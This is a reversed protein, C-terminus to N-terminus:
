INLKMNIGNDSHSIELILEMKRGNIYDGDYKISGHKDYEKGKGIKIDLSYEGEFLVNGFRDYEKGKGNKMGFLYQGEFIVKGRDYEKGKGNRMGNLYEGEFILEGNYEKGMGNRMGNVYAGEFRMRGKNDYEKIMGCGNKLEYLINGNIDFEKVNWKKDLLYECEYKIKGDIFYIKDKKSIKGNLYVVESKLNNNDDYEKGKGKWRQGNIYEGEFILNNNFDYEKGKGYKYGNLYEGEFILYNYYYEKGKGNRKENFYEGEFILIGNDDYEKRIGKWMLDNLYEGEFILREKEDYEKGKGNKKGNLYEGEYKLEGLYYEKGKGNRMGNLYEGEFILRENDDYEKAKANNMNKNNEEIYEVNKDKKGVIKEIGNNIIKIIDGNEAYEKGNWKKDFLYEGEYKIKGNEFFEKGEKKHDYLYIGEFILKGEDNYEKSKGNKMGNLYEGEFVLNLNKGYIKGKGNKMGNLYESEFIILDYCDFELLFGKGNKIEYKKNNDAKIDQKGNWKKGNLYEGEFVLVAEIYEKGKGNKKGYSYESEFTIKDFTKYSEPILEKIIGKREGNLYEGEFFTFITKKDALMKAKLDKVPGKGDKIEYDFIGSGVNGKGNWRKGDLYEGEFLILLKNYEIGKGNKEGNLYEGEYILEGNENFEKGKGNRKGNLYEGEYIVNNNYRDFEKGKKNNDEFIIYKGSFIQYNILSINLYNQIEKNCKILKLKTGDDLFSFIIKSIYISKINKLM